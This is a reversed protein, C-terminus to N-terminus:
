KKEKGDETYDLDIKIGHKEEITKADREWEERTEHKKTLLLASPLGNPHATWLYFDMVSNGSNHVVYVAHDTCEPSVTYKPVLVNLEPHAKLMEGFARIYLEKYRPWRKFDEAMKATGAMPCGICGLREFGEDYLSCYPINYAHIFDWVDEDTWDVIPNILTKRTRYCTEVLRRNEDNDNNLIVFGSKNLVYDAGSKDAMQKTRVPKSQFDVIGHLLQRNKSEAWRVGTLTVQSKGSSEKLVRCCYRMQRTPPLTNKAILTWMTQVRGDKDKPHDWIVDPHHQKIYKMLEPPDVSTVSYHAEYDM